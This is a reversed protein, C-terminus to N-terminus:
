PRRASGHTLPVIKPRSTTGSTHLVLAVNDPQTFGSDVPRSQVDGALAFVGAEAESVPSLEIIPIDRQRAVVRAPSDMGSWLILAKPNLDSLFFDYEKVQYAPNLPACTAGAAVALFSVAM